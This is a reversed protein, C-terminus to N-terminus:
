IGHIMGVATELSADRSAQTHSVLVDPKLGTGDFTRGSPLQARSTTFKLYGDSGKHLPIVTTIAAVGASAEGVLKGRGRDQIAGAVIEAGEATKKDILVVLPLGDLVDGPRAMYHAEGERGRTTVIAGDTLFLDALGIVQNLAGGENGRLDLVMGKIKPNGKLNESIVEQVQQSTQGNFAPVSVILVGNEVSATPLRAPQAKLKGFEEPSIYRSQADLSSVMGNLAARILAAGDLPKEYRKLITDLSDGFVGLMRYIDPDPTPAAIARGEPLSITATVVCLAAIAAGFRKFTKRM